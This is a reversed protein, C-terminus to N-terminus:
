STVCIVYNLVSKLAFEIKPWQKELNELKDESLSFAIAAIHGEKHKGIPALLPKNELLKQDGLIGGVEQMSSILQQTTDNAQEQSLTPSLVLTLDYNRM